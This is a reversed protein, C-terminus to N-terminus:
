NFDFRKSDKYFSYKSPTAGIEKFLKYSKNIENLTNLPKLAVGNQIKSVFNCNNCVMYYTNNSKASKTGKLNKNCEPCILINSKNTNKYDELSIVNDKELITEINAANQPSTDTKKEIINNNETKKNLESLIEKRVEEKLQQKLESKLSDIDITDKKNNKFINKFFNFM